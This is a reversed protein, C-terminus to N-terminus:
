SQLSKLAAFPNNKEKEETEMGDSVVCSGQEWSQTHPHLPYPNSMVVVYDVVLAGVDMPEELLMDHNQEALEADSTLQEDVQLTEKLMFTELSRVCTREMDLQITGRVRIMKGAKEIELRVYGHGKNPDSDMRVCIEQWGAAGIAGEVLYTGSKLNAFDLVVSFPDKLFQQRYDTGSNMM